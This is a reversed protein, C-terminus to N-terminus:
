RSSQKSHAGMIHLIYFSSYACIACKYKGTVDLEPAQHVTNKHKKLQINLFCQYDCQDCPLKDKEKIIVKTVKHTMQIHSNLKAEIDLTFECSMCKLIRIKKQQAHGRAHLVLENLSVDM